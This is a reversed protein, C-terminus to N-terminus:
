KTCIMLDKFINQICAMFIKKSSGQKETYYMM